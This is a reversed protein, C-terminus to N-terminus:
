RRVGRETLSQDLVAKLTDGQGQWEQCKAKARVWAKCGDRASTLVILEIGLERWALPIGVQKSPIQLPDERIGANDTLYIISGVQKDPGTRSLIEIDLPELDRFADLSPASFILGSQLKGRISNAEGQEPLKSLEEFNLPSVLKGGPQLTWLEFPPIRESSRLNLLKQYLVEQITNGWRHLGQSLAILLLTHGSTTRSVSQALESCELQLPEQQLIQGLAITKCICPASGSHARFCLESGMKNLPLSLEDKILKQQDDLWYEQQVRLHFLLEKSRDAPQAPIPEFGWIHITKPTQSCALTMSWTGDPAESALQITTNDCADDGKVFRKLVEPTIGEKRALQIIQEPLPVIFPTRKDTPQSAKPLAAEITFQPAALGKEDMLAVTVPFALQKLHLFEAQKKNLIEILASRMNTLQARKSTDIQLPHYLFKLIEGTDLAEQLTQRLQGAQEKTAVILRAIPYFHPYELALDNVTSDCAPYYDSFVQTCYTDSGVQECKRNAQDRPNKTLKLKEPVEPLLVLEINRSILYPVLRATVTKADTDQESPLGNINKSNAHLKLNIASGPIAQSKQQWKGDPTKEM